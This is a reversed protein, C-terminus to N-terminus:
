PARSEGPRDNESISLATRLGIILAEDNLVQNHTTGALRVFNVLSPDFEAVLAMTEDNPIVDDNEVMFATTPVRIRRAARWSEFKDRLLLAVPIWPLRRQAVGQVSHYPTILVLREITRAAALQTAVGSGLSRGVLSIKKRRAAVHEYTALAARHIAAESTEGESGCYGPYNMAYISFGPLASTLVPLWASVDQANGGFVLLAHDGAEEHAFIDLPGDPGTITQKAASDCRLPPHFLM